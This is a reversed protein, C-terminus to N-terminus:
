HKQRLTVAASEMVIDPDTWGKQDMLKKYARRYLLVAEVRVDGPDPAIFLYEGTDSEFAALRTDIVVRTPNWYAATPSIGTWVEELLKVFVKGALGAYCGDAPDGSGCWEPLVPGKELPLESGDGGYARVVLIVHRLPADTPVHHGTRDNVVRTKVRVGEPSREADLALSVANRLLEPDAAGPMRHGAITGPDRKLGGKEPHAFRDTGSAPMHCDQCTKGTGERSYPSRLWEGFSDYVVTNWFVGFHCPACFQSSRQLGSYTDEGPAVDDLPGAFFQHGEFPRRFEYSLVGPKDPFPLGTEPDLRVAWVKHCFDCTVGEAEAGRVTVPDTNFPAAVAAAPTHCAGCEGTHDPNDLRYGPGYYPEEPDRPLPLLRNDGSHRYRTSPSRRGSIDKGTHLTLFRPNVASRSHADELWEDVPLAPGQASEGRYHCASCAQNEGTGGPGFAPIWEYEPNDLRGHRHLPITVGKDGPSAEVPGGIFYGEAWATLRAPGKFSSPVALEFRGGPGTVARHETAQVRVVAGTVAGEDDRVTGEIISGPDSEGASVRSRPGSVIGALVFLVAVAIWKPDGPPSVGNRAHHSYPFLPIGTM